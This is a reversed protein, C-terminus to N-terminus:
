YKIEIFTHVYQASDHLLALSNHSFTFQLQFHITFHDKPQGFWDLKKWNMKLRCNVQLVHNPGNMRYQKMAMPLTSLYYYQEPGRTALIIGMELSTRKKM